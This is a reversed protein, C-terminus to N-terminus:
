SHIIIGFFHHGGSFWFSFVGSISWIPIFLISVIPFSKHPHCSALVGFRLLFPGLNLFFDEETKLHHSHRHSGGHCNILCEPVIFFLFTSGVIFINQFRDQLLFIVPSLENKRWVKFFFKLIVGSFKSFDPLIRPFSRHTLAWEFSFCRQIIQLLSQM